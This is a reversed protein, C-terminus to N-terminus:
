LFVKELVRVFQGLNNLSKVRLLVFLKKENKKEKKENLRMSFTLFCASLLRYVVMKKKIRM